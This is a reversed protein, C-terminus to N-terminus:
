FNSFGGNATEGTLSSLGSPGKMCPISSEVANWPGPKKVLLRLRSMKLRNVFLM